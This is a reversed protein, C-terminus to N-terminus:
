LLVNPCLKIVNESISAVNDLFEQEHADSLQRLWESTREIYRGQLVDYLDQMVITKRDESSDATCVSVEMAHRFESKSKYMSHNVLTRFARPVRQTSYICLERSIRSDCTRFSHALEEMTWNVGGGFEQKELDNRTREIEARTQTVEALIDGAAIRDSNTFYTSTLTVFAGIVAVFVGIVVGVRAFWGIIGQHAQCCSCIKARSDIQDFCAKCEKKEVASTEM